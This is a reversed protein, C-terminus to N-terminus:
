PQNDNAYTLSKWRCPCSYVLELKLPKKGGVIQLM